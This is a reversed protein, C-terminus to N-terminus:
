PEAPRERMLRTLVYTRDQGHEDWRLTVTLLTLGTEEATESETEYSYDPEDNFTGEHAQNLSLVGLEFDTIVRQALFAARTAKQSASSARAGTTFGQGILTLAAVVVVLAVLVEVLTFGARRRM